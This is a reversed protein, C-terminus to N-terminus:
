KEMYREINNFDGLCMCGNRELVIVRHVVPLQFHAEKRRGEQSKSFRKGESM